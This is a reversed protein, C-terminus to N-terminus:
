STLDAPPLEADADMRHRPEELRFTMLGSLVLLGATAWYVPDFDTKDALWGVAPSLLFPFAVCLSVTSLYRPHKDPECIELTYNILIRLVLPTVGLSIFVLWFFNEGIPGAHSLGVALLPAVASGFILVRLTLRNGWADALPGVVLSYVGIAANQVIVWIVLDTGGIDLRERAMAQYHPFIMLGSGFLMAVMVLRRLNADHYLVQPVEILGRLPHSRKQDSRDAPERLLLTILGSLFFCVAVFAFVYGWRDEKLWGPLLWLAFIMAPVSGWFTSILLLKGRRNPRILKGQVTGFSLQYVGYVVFFAAYLAMFLAAMWIRGQIEGTLCVVALVGLPVCLLLTSVALAWKKYRMTRLYDACLLPPLSQGFRNLLPMCGRLWGAPMLWDVFAPMIVSETKFIWGVRLVIQHMAMLLINRSEAAEIDPNEPAEAPSEEQLVGNEM